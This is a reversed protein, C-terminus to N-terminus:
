FAKNFSIYKGDKDKYFVPVPISDMLAQLFQESDNITEESKKRESIEEYLKEAQELATKEYAELLQKLSAMQSELYQTEANESVSNMFVKETQTFVIAEFPLVAVKVNLALTKFLGAVWETVPVKLFMIIAFIDGTPFVGGFGIISKIGYPIVFEKQAPIYFSGVANPVYFVNYARQETDLLLKTDPKKLM